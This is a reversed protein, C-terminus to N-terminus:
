KSNMSPPTVETAHLPPEDDAYDRQRGDPWGSRQGALRNPSRVTLFCLLGLLARLWALLLLLPGLGLATRDLVRNGRHDIRCRHEQELKGGM